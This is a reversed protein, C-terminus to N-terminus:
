KFTWRFKLDGGISNDIIDEEGEANTRLEYVGEVQVKKSLSYNLNMSQRQGISGGMTSSVSLNLADDLRKKLEIKTATRTRGLTGQGDQNRGTLLSTTQSQEFVTGLNVQLGFQKNLIDSIKFRDFVFSGVGVQTLNQQQSQTLSSRIEDSYGFAILSLISNRPLSPDSTLDFNFRELNGYAKATVKYNSITTLAHIDFDPNRIEKKPDFNIDAQSIIYENNKFFIKSQGPVTNLRGQGRLRDLNGDITVDGKFNVDMLSNAIRIPNETKVRLNFNFLKSIFSEQGRPLFRSPASVPTKTTFDNLENLVQCKNLFIEGTVSYPISDGLILGQGTINVFSKGMFPFEAKDIVYKLNIDPHFDDFFVEGNISASGNEISTTLEKILLKNKYFEFQYNIDNLPIPLHELTLNLNNSSSKALIDYDSKGGDIILSYNIVGQASLVPKLFIELLKANLQIQNSLLVDRGFQGRGKSKISLDPNDLELNWKKVVDREIIFQPSPSLYNVNFSEHFLKMQKIFGNFNVDKFNERFSTEVIAVLSGTFDENKLHDGFFAVAFSKVDPLDVNVRLSSPIDKKHSHNVNINLSDNFISIDGSVKDQNLYFSMLSDPYQYDQNFTKLLKNELKLEYDPLRGKGSINGFLLGDLNLNFKKLIRIKQLSLEDWDFQFDMKKNNLNILFEGNIQGQGSQAFFDQIEFVQNSLSIKFEGFNLNEGYANLDKFNIDSKVKLDQFSTKGFIQADIRADFDLDSPLFDLKGLIPKLIERLDTFKAKASDIGIAIDANKYNVSGTGSIPTSRYVSELSDINVVSDALHISIDEVSNGLQYGLIEFNDTKGRLQIIVDDIPGKVNIDLPGHGKIDLNSINGFDEFSVISDKTKFEVSKDTIKGNLNLFSKKMQIMSELTFVNDLYNFKTKSLTAKKVELIKFPSKDGVEFILDSVGFNEDLSIEFGNEFVGITASGTLKSNLVNLSPLSKLINRLEANTLELEIESKIPKKQRLNFVEVPRKLSLSEDNNKLNFKNIQVKEDKIEIAAIIEEAQILSSDVDKLLLDLKGKINKNETDVKFSLHTSGSMFSLKGPLDILQSLQSFYLYGEGNFSAQAELLKSYDKIEGKIIANHVYHQIKLRHIKINKRDLSVDGWLEDISMKSTKKPVLNSVHFRIKLKDKNKTVKIRKGDLIEHSTILKINEILVSSLWIPSKKFADFVKDINEQPIEKMEDNNEPSVFEVVSDKLRIQGLNFSNDEFHFTAFSFGLEGFEALLIKSEDIKKKINVKELYIGPPFIDIKVSNFRIKTDAKKQALDSIVKSFVRGFSESQIFVVMSLLSALVFFTFAGLISKYRM